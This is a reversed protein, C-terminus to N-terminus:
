ISWVGSPITPVNDRVNDKNYIYMIAEGLSTNVFKRDYLSPYGEIRDLAKLTDDDINFVEGHIKTEGVHLVGPYWGLNIMTFEPDTVAEGIFESEELARHLQGGQKLTGYVFVQQM